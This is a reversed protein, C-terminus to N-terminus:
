LFGRGKNPYSYGLPPPIHLCTQFWQVYPGLEGQDESVWLTMVHGEEFHGCHLGPPLHLGEGTQSVIPGSLM